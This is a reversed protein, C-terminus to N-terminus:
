SGDSWRSPRGGSRLLSLQLTTLLVGLGAGLRRWGQKGSQDITQLMGDGRRITEPLTQLAKVKEVHEEEQRQIYEDLMKEEEALLAKREKGIEELQSVGYFNGDKGKQAGFKGSQPGYKDVNQTRRTERTQEEREIRRLIAADEDIPHEKRLWELAQDFAEPFRELRRLLKPHIDLDLTGNLRRTHLIKLLSTALEPPLTDTHFISQVQEKQLGNHLFEPEPSTQAPAQPAQNPPRQGRQPTRPPTRLSRSLLPSPPQIKDALHQPRGRPTHLPTAQRLSRASLIFSRAIAPQSATVSGHRGCNILPRWAITWVHSM